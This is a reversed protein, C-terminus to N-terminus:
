LLLWFFFYRSDADLPDLVLDSSDEMSLCGEDKKKKIELLGTLIRLDELTYFIPNLISLCVTEFGDDSVNRSIETSREM